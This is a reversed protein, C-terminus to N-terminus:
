DLAWWAHLGNGSNVLYSPEPLSVELLLREIHALAEPPECDFDLYFCKKEAVNARGPAALKIDSQSAQYKGEVPIKSHFSATSFYANRDKYRNLTLWL